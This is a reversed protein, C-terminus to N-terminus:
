LLNGLVLKIKFMLAWINGFMSDDYVPPQPCGKDIEMLFCSGVSVSGFKKVAAERMDDNVTAKRNWLCARQLEKSRNVKTNLYGATEQNISRGHGEKTPGSVVSSKSQASEARQNWFVLCVPTAGVLFRQRTSHRSSSGVHQLQARLQSIRRGDTDSSDRSTASGFVLACVTFCTIGYYTTRAGSKQMPPFQSCGFFMEKKDLTQEFRMAKGCGPCPATSRPQTM